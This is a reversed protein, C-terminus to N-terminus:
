APAADFLVHGLAWDAIAWALALALGLVFPADLARRVIHANVLINWVVIALMAWGLLVQPPTLEAPPSPAPGSLWVFPLILLSFVIGCAILATATQVYRNGLRRLSLAIGCLALVLGTSVLSRALVNSTEGLLAGTVVDLVVSAGVLLGLLLRSYPADEPGRHLQCLELVLATFDAAPSERRTMKTMADDRPLLPRRQASEALQAASHSLARPEAIRRREPM